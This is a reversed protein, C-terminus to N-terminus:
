GPDIAMLARQMAKATQFRQDPDKACAAMFFSDIDGATEAPTEAPMYSSPPAPERERHARLLERPHQEALDEFPHRGGTVMEFFTM